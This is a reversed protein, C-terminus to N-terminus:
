ASSSSFRGARRDLAEAAEGARLDGLISRPRLRGERLADRGLQARLDVRGAAGLRAVDQAQLEALVAMTSVTIAFSRMSTALRIPRM